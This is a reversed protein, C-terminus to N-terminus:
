TLQREASERVGPPGTEAVSPLCDGSLAHSVPNFGPNQKGALRALECMSTGGSKSVHLGEMIPRLSHSCQEVHRMLLVAARGAVQVDQLDQTVDTLQSHLADLAQRASGPSSATPGQGSQLRRSAPVQQQTASKHGSGPVVATVTGQQTKQSDRGAGTLWSLLSFGLKSYWSTSASSSPSTSTSSATVSISLSATSTAQTPLTSTPVGTAATAVKGAAAAQKEAHWQVAEPGAQATAVALKVRLRAQRAELALQLAHLAALTLRRVIPYAGKYPQPPPASIPISAVGAATLRRLHRQADQLAAQAAQPEFSVDALQALQQQVEAEAPGSSLAARQGPRITHLLAHAAQSRHLTSGTCNISRQCADLADLLRFLLISLPDGGGAGSAGQQQQQPTPDQVGQPDASKALTHAREYVQRALSMAQVACPSGLETWAGKSRQLAPLM